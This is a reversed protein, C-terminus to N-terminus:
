ALRLDTGLRMPVFRVEASATDLPLRADRSSATVSFAPSVEGDKYMVVDGVLARDRDTLDDLHPLGAGYFAFVDFGELAVSIRYDSDPAIPGVSFSGDTASRAKRTSSGVSLALEANALPELTSGDLVRGSLYYNAVGDDGSDSCALCSLLGAAATVLRTFRLTAKRSSSTRAGIARNIM